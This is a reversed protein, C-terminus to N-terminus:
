HRLTVSDYYAVGFLGKKLDFRVTDGNKVGSRYAQRIFDEEGGDSKSPLEFLFLSHESREEGSTYGAVYSRTVVGRDSSRNVYLGVASFCSRFIMYSCFLYFAAVLATQFVPGARKLRVVAWIVTFAFLGLVIWFLLFYVRASFAESDSPLYFDKQRPIFLVVFAVWLLMLAIQRWYKMFFTKM